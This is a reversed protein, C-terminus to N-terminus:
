VLSHTGKRIEVRIQAQKLRMEDKEKDAEFQKL